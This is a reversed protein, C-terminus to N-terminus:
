IDVINVETKYNSCLSLIYEKHCTFFLVQNTKAFEILAAIAASLRNKDFNVFADDIILPLKIENNGYNQAYGLRFALYLQERTGRSLEEETKTEGTSSTISKNNFDARVYKGCTITRLFKEASILNPETQRQEKEAYEIINLILKKTYIENIINELHTKLLNKQTQLDIIGEFAELSKKEQLLKARYDIINEHEEKLEDLTRDPLLDAFQTEEIQKSLDNIRSINNDIKTKVKNNNEIIKQIENFKEEDNVFPIDISALEIFEAFKEYYNECEKGLFEIRSRETQKQAFLKKTERLEELLNLYNKAPIIRGDVCTLKNLEIQYQEYNSSFEQIQKTLRVLEEENHALETEIKDIETKLTKYEEIRIETDHAIRNLAAITCLFEGHNIVPMIKHKIYTYIEESKNVNRSKIFTFITTVALIVGSLTILIGTKNSLAWFVGLATFIVSLVLNSLIIITNIKPTNNEMNEALSSIADKLEFLAAEYTRIESIPLEDLKTKYRNLSKQLENKTDTLNDLKEQLSEFLIEKNSIEQTLERIKEAHESSVDFAEIKHQELELNYKLNIESIKEGIEQNIKSLQLNKLEEQYEYILGAKKSLEYFFHKNDYLKPNFEKQLETNEKILEAAEKKAHEIQQAQEKNQIFQKIKELDCTLSNIKSTIELYKNEKCSLEKIQTETESILKILNNFKNNPNNNETLYERLNKELKSKYNAINPSNHDQILSFLKSDIQNIDDLNIAFARQYFNQDIGELVENIATKEPYLVKLRANKGSKNGDSKIKYKKSNKTLELEGSIDKSFFFVEKLFKMMSSKGAENAGCIINFGSCFEKLPLNQGNVSNIKITNIVLKNM